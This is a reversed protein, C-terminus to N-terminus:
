SLCVHILGKEKSFFYFFFHTFTYTLPIHSQTPWFHVHVSSLPITQTCSKKWLLSLFSQGESGKTNWVHQKFYFEPTHCGWCWWPLSSWAVTGWHFFSIPQHLGLSDIRTHAWCPLWDPFAHCFSSTMTWGNKMGMKAPAVLMCGTHGRACEALVSSAVWVRSELFHFWFSCGLPWRLSLHLPQGKDIGDSLTRLASTAKWTDNALLTSPVLVSGQLCTVVNFILM